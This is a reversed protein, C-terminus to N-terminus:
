ENNTIKKAEEVMKNQDEASERAAKRIREETPQMQNLIMDKVIKRAEEILLTRCDDITNNAAHEAVAPFIADHVINEKKGMREAMYCLLSAMSSRLWTQVSESTPSPKDWHIASISGGNPDHVIRAKPNLMENLEEMIQEPSKPTTM